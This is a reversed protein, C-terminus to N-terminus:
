SIAGTGMKVVYAGTSRGSGKCCSHDADSFTTFVESSPDPAYTLAFHPTGKHYHFTLIKKRCALGMGGTNCWHLM